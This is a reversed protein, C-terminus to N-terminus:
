FVNGDFSQINQFVHTPDKVLFSSKEFLDKEFLSM